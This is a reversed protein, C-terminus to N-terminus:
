FRIITYSFTVGITASPTLGSAVSSNLPAGYGASGGLGINWRRKKLRKYRAEWEKEISESIEVQADFKTREAQFKQRLTPITEKEYIDIVNEQRRIVAKLKAIEASQVSDKKEAKEKYEVYKAFENLERYRIERTDGFWDPENTAPSNTGSTNQSHTLTTSGLALM